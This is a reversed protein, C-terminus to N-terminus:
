DAAGLAKAIAERAFVTLPKDLEACRQLLRQHLDETM